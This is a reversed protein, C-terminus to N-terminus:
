LFFLFLYGAIFAVLVSGAIVPWAAIVDNVVKATGDGYVKEIFANKILAVTAEDLIAGVKPLCFKGAIAYTDFRFPELEEDSVEIPIVAGTAAEVISAWSNMNSYYMCNKYYLDDEVPVSQGRRLGNVKGLYRDYSYYKMRTTPMCIDQMTRAVTDM